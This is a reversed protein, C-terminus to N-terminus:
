PQEMRDLRRAIGVALRAARELLEPQINEVTDTRWHWNPIRGNELAMLTLVRFRRLLAVQADTSITHFTRPDADIGIDAADAQGALDVLLPDARHRCLMGERVIISLEGRGLSELNLIYTDPRPFPYQRLFRRAGHLGSEECGTAVFWLATHQLNDLEAALRLLVAVGSANDNAGPVCPMFIERQLLFLLVLLLYGAPLMQAYWLWPTDLWWSLGVLIPLAAMAALMLLFYRRFGGAMRPHFLPSSRSSDLHAMIVLHKRAHQAAPRTGVVNQSKGRPLWSSVVPFSLTELVSGALTLLSLALAAPRHFYYVLPVLASLLNLLGYPLSYTAVARFVQLDVDLGAVRMKSNVYAAAQAEASSTPPRPGIEGALARITELPEDM